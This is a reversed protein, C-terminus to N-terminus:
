ELIVIGVFFINGYMEKDFAGIELFNNYSKCIWMLELVKIM